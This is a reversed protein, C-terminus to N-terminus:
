AESSATYYTIGGITSTGLTPTATAMPPRFDAGYTPRLSQTRFIQYYRMCRLLEEGYDPLENLVWVGNEQHALTQYSGVELKVAYVELEANTEASTAGTVLEIWFDDATQGPTYTTSICFATGDTPLAVTRLMSGKKSFSLLVNASASVVKGFVSATYKVGKLLRVVQYLRQRVAGGNGMKLVVCGANLTVLSNNCYWRDFVTQKAANTYNAQGRQNIPFVGNGLQSGGGVFYGNDLLNRRPYQPYEWDTDYDAASAKVHIQGPAGGAPFGPGAPGRVLGLNKDITGLKPEIM